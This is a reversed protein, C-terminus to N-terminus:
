VEAKEKTSARQGARARGAAKTGEKGNNSVPLLEREGPEEMEERKMEVREEEMQAPDDFSRIHPLPEHEDFSRGPDGLNHTASGSAFILVDRARLPALARGLALHHAPGM